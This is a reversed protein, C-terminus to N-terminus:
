KEIEIAAEEPVGVLLLRSVLLLEDRSFEQRNITKKRLESMFGVFSLELCLPKARVMELFDPIAVLYEENMGARLLSEAIREEKDGWEGLRIKAIYRNFQSTLGSTVPNECVAKLEELFWETSYWERPTDEKM